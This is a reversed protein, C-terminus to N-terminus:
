EEEGGERPPSASGQDGDCDACESEAEDVDGACVGNPCRTPHAAAFRQAAAEAQAIREATPPHSSLYAFDEENEDDTQLVRMARAFWRPSEEHRALLDFAFADAEAEFGRSYHSDLLFTPVAVVVAGASSVDGAFVAAVVAVLSGRLAQRLAHRHQQHGLEHAVVADFERDDRLRHVLQDTVVVIGGPLAFANAGIGPADRFEIRDAVGRDLGHLLNQFRAYLEDQRDQELASPELGFRDLQALTHEGLSHETGSPITAAIHDALRPVGWIAGIALAAVCILVAAAVAPARRELRDVLAELRHRRPFWVDIPASAPLLLRAGDGFEVTREVNALKPTVTLEAIAGERAVGDGELVYRGAELDRLTAAHARGSRGDFYTGDFRENM